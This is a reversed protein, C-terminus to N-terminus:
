LVFPQLKNVWLHLEIRAEWETERVNKSWHTKTRNAAWVNCSFEKAPEWSVKKWICQSLELFNATEPNFVFEFLWFFEIRALSNYAIHLLELVSELDYMYQNFAWLYPFVLDKPGKKPKNKNRKWFKGNLQVNKCLQFPIFRESPAWKKLDSRWQKTYIISHRYQGSQASIYKRCIFFSWVFIM